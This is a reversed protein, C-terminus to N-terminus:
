LSPARYYETKDTKKNNMKFVHPSSATEARQGTAVSPLFHAGGILGVAFFLPLFIEDPICNLKGVRGYWTSLFNQL